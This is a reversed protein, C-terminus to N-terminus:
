NGSYTYTRTKETFSAFTNFLNTAKTRNPEQSEGEHLDTLLKLGDILALLAEHDEHKDSHQEFLRLFNQAKLLDPHQTM